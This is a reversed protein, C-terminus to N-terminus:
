FQRRGESVASCDAAHVNRLSIGNSMECFPEIGCRPHPRGESGYGPTRKDNSLYFFETRSSDFDCAAAALHQEMEPRRGLIVVFIIPLRRTLFALVPHAFVRGNDIHFEAITVAQIDQLKEFVLRHDYRRARNGDFHRFM